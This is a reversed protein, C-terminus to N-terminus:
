PTAPSRRDATSVEAHTLSRADITSPASAAGRAAEALYAKEIKQRNATGRFVGITRPIGIGAKM